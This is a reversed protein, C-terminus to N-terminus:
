YMLAGNLSIAVKDIQYCCVLIISSGCDRSKTVHQLQMMPRLTTHQDPVLAAQQQAPLPLQHSDSRLGDEHLIICNSAHEVTM